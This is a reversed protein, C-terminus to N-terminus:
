KVEFTKTEVPNGNLLVEVKYKGGPWGDPKSIHFETMVPGSQAITQSSEDVIQGDQYSWRATLTTTPASGETKVAVYITDRPSFSEAKTKIQNDPALSKGLDVATITVGERPAPTAGETTRQVAPSEANRAKEKCGAALLVVVGMGCTLLRRHEHRM